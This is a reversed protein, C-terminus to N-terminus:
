HVQYVLFSRAGTGSSLHIWGPFIATWRGPYKEITQQLLRYPEPHEGPANEEFRNMVVFQLSAGAIAQMLEEPTDYLMRYRTGMWNSDELFKSGRVITHGPRSEHMAVEAIFAGEGIADSVILVTSNRWDPRSGLMSVLERYGLHPKPPTNGAAWVETGALVGVLLISAVWTSGFRALLPLSVLWLIGSVTFMLLVPIVLSVIRLGNAVALFSEFCGVSLLLGLAAIWRGNGAKRHPLLVFQRCIGLLAFPSAFPGIARSWLIPTEAIMSARMRIGGYSAVSEHRADPAWLYWPVCVLITLVAPVWLSRHKVLYWRWGLLISLAAALGLVLGTGKTLIALVACLGFGVAHRPESWDLYDGLYLLSALVMLSVLVESMIESALVRMLPLSVMIGATLLALSLPMLPRAFWVLMIALLACLVAMLLLISIRSPTFLLTWAAQVVYFVPPWHGLAVKPYHQYYNQTFQWPHQTFGGALYDRVMLGTIYHAPEDATQALEASYAGQQFQFFIVAALLAFFAALEGRYRLWLKV